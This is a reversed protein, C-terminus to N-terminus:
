CEVPGPPVYNFFLVKRSITIEPLSDIHWGLRPETSRPHEVM